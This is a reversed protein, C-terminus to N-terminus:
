KIIVKYPSTLTDSYVKLLQNTASDRLEITSYYLKIGDKPIVEIATLKAGDVVSAFDVNLIGDTVSVPFERQIAIYRAGSLMFIDFNTLVRQGEINVNFVRRGAATHWLEAFHLRVSYSGAPVPIRYSFDGVRSGGYVEQNYLKQESTGQITRYAGFLSIMDTYQGGVRVGGDAQWGAPAAAGAEVPAYRLITPTIPKSGKQYTLMREYFGSSPDYWVDWIGHGGSQLITKEAKPFIGRQNLGDVSNITNYVSCTPDDMAHLGAYGLSWKVLSDPKTIGYAPCIPFVAAAKYGWGDAFENTAAGGMSLGTVYIRSMDISRNKVAWDIVQNAQQGTSWGISQIAIVIFDKKFQGNACYKPLGTKGVKSLQLNGDGTEGLGHMFVILPYKKVGDYGAPLYEWYGNSGIAISSDKYDKWSQSKAGICLVVFLFLLLNKM